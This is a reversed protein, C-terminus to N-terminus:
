VVLYSESVDNLQRLEEFVAISENVYKEGLNILPLCFFM